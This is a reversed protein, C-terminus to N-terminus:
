RRGSPEPRKHRASDFDSIASCDGGGSSGDMAAEAATM